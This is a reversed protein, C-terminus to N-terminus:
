GLLALQDVLILPDSDGILQFDIAQLALQGPSALRLPQAGLPDCGGAATLDHGPKLHALQGLPQRACGACDPQIGAERMQSSRKINGANSQANRSIRGTGAIEAPALAAQRM